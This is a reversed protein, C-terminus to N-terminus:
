IFKYNEIDKVTIRMSSGSVNIGVSKVYALFEDSELIKKAENLLLGGKATIYFGSYPICHKELKYINVKNSIVTSILLKEVNLHSLAQSRGYEFWKASTDMDRKDLELKHSKLYKYVKPYFKRMETDSFRELNNSLDYRYPFIILERKNKAFGRPSAAERVIDKEFFLRGTSFFEDGEVFEKLVYIENRLTAVSNSVKFFDGFRKIEKQSNTNLPDQFIWKGILKKKRIPYEKKEVIDFYQVCENKASMDFIVISSSTIADKFLKMTSYDYIALIKPLMFDRLEQAFVNKFLSNPILYGMKGRENLNKLGSEIFAYCYDFKGRKCVEYNERLYVRTETDIEQYTIYPPNGVVFDFKFNIKKKLTDVNLINWKVSHIGFGNAIKELKLVCTEIHRSDIEAGFIDNELGLKIQHLPIGDLIADQIYREVVIILINGDGCANELIKKGYLGKIYGVRDLLEIVNKEPTFKQCKENIKKIM